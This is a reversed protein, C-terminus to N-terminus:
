FVGLIRLLGVFFLSFREIPPLVRCLDQFFRSFDKFFAGFIQLIELFIKLFGGFVSFIELSSM